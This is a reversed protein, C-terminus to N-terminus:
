IVVLNITKKSYLKVLRAYEQGFPTADLGKSTDIASSTFTRKIPGVTESQAQRQNLSGYHAALYRTLKEKCKDDVKLESVELTADDILLSVQEDTLVQLHTAIAKVKDITTLQM